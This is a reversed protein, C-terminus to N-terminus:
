RRLREESLQQILAAGAVLKTGQSKTLLRSRVLAQVELEYATIQQLAVAVQQRGVAVEASELKANLSLAIGPLTRGLFLAALEKAAAFVSSLPPTMLYGRMQAHFFGTGVIQGFDNIGRADILLWRAQDVPPLQTNLDTMQNNRYVFAHTVSSGPLFESQGVIRGLDNIDFAASNCTGIPCLTGLDLMGSSGPPVIVGLPLVFAHSAGTFNGIGSEGVIQASAPAQPDPDAGNNIAYAASDSGGLTGLETAAGGCFLVAHRTGLGIFALRAFGVILGSDNIGRAQSLNLFPPTGLDEIVGSNFRFAHHLDLFHEDVSAGGVILGDNNIGFALSGRCGFPVPPDNPPCNLLSL